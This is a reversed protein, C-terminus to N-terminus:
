VGSNFCLLPLAIGHTLCWSKRSWWHCSIQWLATNSSGSLWTLDGLSPGGRARSGLAEHEEAQSWPGKVLVLRAEKLNCLHSKV